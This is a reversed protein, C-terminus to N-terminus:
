TDYVADMLIMKVFDDSNLEITEAYCNRVM